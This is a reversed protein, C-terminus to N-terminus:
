GGEEEEKRWEKKAQKSAPKGIKWSEKENSIEMEREGMRKKEGKIWRGLLSERRPRIGFPIENNRENRCSTGYSKSTTSDPMLDPLSELAVDERDTAM